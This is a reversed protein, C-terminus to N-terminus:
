GVIKKNFLKLHENVWKLRNDELFLDDKVNDYDSKWIEYRKDPNKVLWEIQDIMDNQNDCTLNCRKYPDINTYIGPIGCVTYELLKLNSKARNFDNIELPALGIDIDLSKMFIPYSMYDIWQYYTIDKDDKLEQPIGGVFIWEYDKKTKHVYDLLPKEFDGGEETRGKISFHNQSGPYVIKPKKREKPECQKVDGWIFKGLRNKVVSINSNYQSYIYRLYPTSVTIGDVMKMMEEIYPKNEEYYKSAHNSKPINFLLDDIDYLVPTNTKKSLLNKFSKILNMQEETASRQFKVFTQSKYYNPDNVFFSLYTPEFSMQKYRWSGLVLSPIITRIHGVGGRDCLFTTFPFKGKPPINKLKSM